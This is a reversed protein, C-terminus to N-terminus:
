NEMDASNELLATIEKEVAHSFLTSIATFALPRFTTVMESVLSSVDGKGIKLMVDKVFTEVVDRAVVQLNEQTRGALELFPLLADDANHQNLSLAVDTLAPMPIEVRDDHILVMGAEMAKQILNAKDFLFGYGKRFAELSMELPADKQWSNLAVLAGVEIDKPGAKRLLDQIAALSYGREQMATIQKLRDLHCSDYYGKRGKTNPCLKVMLTTLIFFNMNGCFNLITTRYFM